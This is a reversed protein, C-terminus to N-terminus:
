NKSFKCENVTCLSKSANKVKFALPGFENIKDKIKQLSDSAFVINISYDNLFSNICEEQVKMIKFEENEKILYYRM